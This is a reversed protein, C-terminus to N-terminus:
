GDGGDEALGDEPAGTLQGEAPVPLPDQALLTQPAMEAAGNTQPAHVSRVVHFPLANTETGEVFLSLWVTGEGNVLGPLQEPLKFRVENDQWADALVAKVPRHNIFIKRDQGNTGRM